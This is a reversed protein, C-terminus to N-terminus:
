KNVMEPRNAANPWAFGLLMALLLAMWEPMDAAISLMDICAIAVILLCYSKWQPM